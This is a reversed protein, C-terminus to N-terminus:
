FYEVKFVNSSMKGSLYTGPRDGNPRKKRRSQELLLRSVFRKWKYRTSDHLQGAFVFPRAPSQSEM